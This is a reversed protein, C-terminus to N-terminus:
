GDASSLVRPVRATLPREDSLLVQQLLPHRRLPPLTQKPESLQVIPLTALHVLDHLVPADIAAHEDALLCYGHFDDSIATVIVPLCPSYTYLDNPHVTLERGNYLITMWGKDVLM